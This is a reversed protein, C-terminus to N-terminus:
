MQLTVVDAYNATRKHGSTDSTTRIKVKSSYIKVNGKRNRGLFLRMSM